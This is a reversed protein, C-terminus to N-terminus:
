GPDGAEAAALQRRLIKGVATKPLSPRFEWRTPIKFPALRERCFRELETETVSAGPRLVLYAKVTEGRYPDPVGAVCCEGIAPHEYLVEEVDRPYVNFGGAIIMDKKRDVIAFYGDEDMTGLDGTYLWGDRLAGATEDPMNWYGAMVQPGRIRIEGVEGAPLVRSGTEVDVIHCETSRIPPGVSGTKRLGHSPNSHSVPSCESLGYGELIAVGFREEFARLVEAPMPAAGSNCYRLSGLGYEAADPAANLAVYMTPVGPLYTPRTAKITELVERLEFRPLLIVEFGCALPFNMGVTMGYSHFLPLATLMREEGPRGRDPHWAQVQQVNAVLNRHTLMAGKPVGTTGGTYQLAAVDGPDISVAPPAEAADALAAEFSAAPPALTVDGKLRAVLVHRVRPLRPLAAQVVPYLADAVIIVEAGADAVLQALERPTYLPNVQAVTAGARLIGHFAVVYQPCNPLMVAVREGKAVGLRALAAACRLVQAWLAGYSLRLGFFRVAPLDPQQEAVDAVLQYLPVDRPEISAPVGEPYHALWPRGEGSVSGTM